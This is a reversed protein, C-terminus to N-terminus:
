SSRFIEFDFYVNDWMSVMGTERIHDDKNEPLLVIRTTRFAHAISLPASLCGIFFKCSRIAICMDLCSSPRYCEITLEKFRNKFAYFDNENYTLFVLKLKNENNQPPPPPPTTFDNSFKELLVADEVSMNIGPRYENHNIIITNKWKEDYEVDLWIHRGWDINYASKYIYNWSNNSLHNRWNHLCIDIQEGNYIKYDKVYKQKIIVEYTDNYTAEIGNRFPFGSEFLYIIGKRGTELFKENVVSLQHILDGFLGCTRYSIPEPEFIPCIEPSLFFDSLEIIEIEEIKESSRQLIEIDNNTQTEPYIMKIIGINFAIPYIKKLIKEAAGAAAAFSPSTFDIFLFDYEITLAMIEAIKDYIQSISSLIIRANKCGYSKQEIIHSNHSLNFITKIRFRKQNFEFIENAVSPFKRDFVNMKKIDNTLHWIKENVYTLINYYENKHKNCERLANIEKQIEARKKEDEIFKKKLELISLKDIAEGISVEVKM